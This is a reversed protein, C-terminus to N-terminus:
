SSSFVFLSDFHVFAIIKVTIFTEYCNKLHWILKSEHKETRTLVRVFVLSCVPFFAWFFNESRNESIYIYIYMCRCSTYVNICVDSQIYWHTSPDTHIHIYVLLVFHCPFFIEFIAAWSYIHLVSKSTKEIRKGYVYMHIPIYPNKKKKLKVISCFSAFFFFIYPSHFFFIWVNVTNLNYCEIKWGSQM